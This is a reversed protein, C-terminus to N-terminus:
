VALFSYWHCILSISISPNMSISSTREAIPHNQRKIQYRSLSFILFILSSSYAPCYLPAPLTNISFKIAPTPAIVINPITITIKIEHIYLDITSQFPHPATPPVSRCCRSYFMHQIAPIQLAHLYSREAIYSLSDSKLLVRKM